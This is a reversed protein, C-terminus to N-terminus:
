RPFAPPLAEREDGGGRHGMMADLIATEGGAFPVEFSGAVRGMRLVHIRHCLHLTERLDNSLLLVGVGQEALAAIQEHIQGRSQIDVGATPDELIVLRVSYCTARGFLVKQQNGGSLRSIHDEISKFNVSLKRLRDNVFRSEINTSVLGFRSISGLRGLTLNERIPRQALIGREKRGAPLYVIGAKAAHSPSRPRWTAAGNGRYEITGRRIRALGVLSRALTERGCGSVGYLGVIEGAAVGFTVGHCDRGARLEHIDILKAGGRHNPKSAIAAPAERTLLAILDRETLGRDVQRTEVIRGQRMLSVRTGVAIAEHIRHTVYLVAGGGATFRRLAAFILPEERATLLSSPEDMILIRPDQIFGKAIEVIQRQIPSLDAVRAHPSIDFGISDLMARASVLEERRRLMRYLPSDPDRVLALNEAVTLAPILSLEQFVTAIGLARAGRVNPIQVAQGQFFIRDRRDPILGSLVKALTSKGAGNEGLLVHVEGERLSM